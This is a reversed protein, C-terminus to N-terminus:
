PGDVAWDTVEIQLAFESLDTPNSRATCPEPARAARPPFVLDGRLFVLQMAARSTAYADFISCRASRSVAEPDLLKGLESGFCEASEYAM